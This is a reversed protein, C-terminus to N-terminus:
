VSRYGEAKGESSADGVACRLVRPKMSACVYRSADAYINTVALVYLVYPGNGESPVIKRNNKIRSPSCDIPARSYQESELYGRGDTERIVM